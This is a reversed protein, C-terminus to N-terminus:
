AARIQKDAKGTRIGERFTPLHRRSFASSRLADSAHPATLWIPAKLIPPFRVPCLRELEIPPSTRIRSPRCPACKKMVRAVLCYDTRATKNSVKLRQNRPMRGFWATGRLFRRFVDEGEGVGADILVGAYRDASRRSPERPLQQRLRMARRPSHRNRAPM